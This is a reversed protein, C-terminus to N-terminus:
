APNAITGASNSNIAPIALVRRMWEVRDAVGPHLWTAKRHAPQDLTVRLLAASLAEAAESYTEPVDAVDGSIRAALRCAQVDADHETRYAVSKLILLTMLIGFVTGAAMAWPQTGLIQTVLTGSGWAPLIALMRLPMHRRRLHAAEHLVVMAVQERPLEDILRDSILLTRLPPVFGAVLANFTRGGTEWRVARTRAVGAASLLADIWNANAERLKTTKFLRHILMPVGVIILVLIALGTLLSATQKSIPLMAIADNVGLLGLVPILLWGIGNRFIMSLSRIYNRPGTATYGVMVGFLHEASWTGVTITVGPILLILSQLLTSSEVIPVAAITGALGFGGLCLVVVGLGMWRFAALQKELVNAGVIPDIQERNVQIACVRAAIHSLLVWGLVLSTSAAAARWLTAETPPLSGCALSVILILFSYLQM